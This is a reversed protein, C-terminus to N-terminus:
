MQCLMWYIECFPVSDKIEICVGIKWPLNQVYMPESYTMEKSLQTFNAAEFKLVNQAVNEHSFSVIFTKGNVKATEDNWNKHDSDVHEIFDKFLIQKKCKNELSVIERFICCKQHDELDQAGFMFLWTQFSLLLAM